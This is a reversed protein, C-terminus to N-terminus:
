NGRERPNGSLLDDSIEIGMMQARELLHRHEAMMRDNKNELFKIYEVSKVLITGKSLRTAPELGELDDSNAGSPLNLELDDDCEEDKGDSRKKALVRLTPVTNQLDNFKDNIKNRYRREIVNHASKVRTKGVPKPPDDEPDNSRVGDAPSETKVRPDSTRSADAFGQNNSYAAYSQEPGPLFSGLENYSNMRYTKYDDPQAARFDQQPGGASAYYLEPDTDQPIQPQGNQTGYLNLGEQAQLDEGFLLGDINGNYPNAM